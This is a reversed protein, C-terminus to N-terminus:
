ARAIPKADQERKCLLAKHGERHWARRGWGSKRAAPPPAVEIRAIEPEPDRGAKEALREKAAV